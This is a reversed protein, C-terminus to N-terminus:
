RRREDQMKRGKRRVWLCEKSPPRQREKRQGGKEKGLGMTMQMDDGQNGRMWTGYQMIGKGDDGM